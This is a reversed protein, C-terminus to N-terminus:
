ARTKQRDFSRRALQIRRFKQAPRPLNALQDDAKLAPRRRRSMSHDGAMRAASIAPVGQNSTKQGPQPVLRAMSRPVM